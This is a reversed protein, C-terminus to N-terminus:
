TEPRRRTLGARRGRAEVMRQHLRQVTESGTRVYLFPLLAHLLCALGAGILAFGFGAAARLHEGYTEGVSRPHATFLAKLMRGTYSLM